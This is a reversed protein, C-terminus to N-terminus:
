LNDADSSTLRNEDYYVFINYKDLINKYDLIREQVYDAVPKNLKSDSFVGDQQVATILRDIPDEGDSAPEQDVGADMDDSDGAVVPSEQASDTARAEEEINGKAM